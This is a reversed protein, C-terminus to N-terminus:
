RDPPRSSILTADAASLSNFLFSRLRGLRAPRSALALNFCIQIKPARIQIAAYCFGSSFAAGPFQDLICISGM